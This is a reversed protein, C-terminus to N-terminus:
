FRHKFRILKRPIKMERWNFLSPRTRPMNLVINSIRVNNIPQKAELLYREISKTGCGFDSAADTLPRALTDQKM